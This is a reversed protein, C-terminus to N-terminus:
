GLGDSPLPGGLIGHVSFGVPRGPFTRVHQRESSWSKAQVPASQLSGLLLGATCLHIHSPDETPPLSALITPCNILFKNSM